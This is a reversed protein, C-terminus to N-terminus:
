KKPQVTSRRINLMYGDPNTFTLSDAVRDVKLTKGNLASLFAQEQQMVPGGCAMRTTGLDSFKIQDGNINVTGNFQNCGSFGSVQKGKFVLFPLKGKVPVFDPLTWGVVKWQGALDGAQAQVPGALLLGLLLTFKKMM